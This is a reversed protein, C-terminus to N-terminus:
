WAGPMLMAVRTIRPDEDDAFKGARWYEQFAVGSLNLLRRAEDDFVAWADAESLEEVTVDTPMCDTVKM